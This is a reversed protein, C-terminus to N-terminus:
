ATPIKQRRAEDLAKVGELIPARMTLALMVVMDVTVGTSDTKAVAALSARPRAMSEM